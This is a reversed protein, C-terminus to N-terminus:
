RQEDVGPLFVDCRGSVTPAASMSEGAPSSAHIMSLNRSQLSAPPSRSRRNSRVASRVTAVRYQDVPEIPVENRWYKSKGAFEGRGTIVTGAPNARLASAIMRSMGLLMASRAQLSM